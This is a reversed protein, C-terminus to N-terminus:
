MFSRQWSNSDVLSWEEQCNSDTRFLHLDRRQIGCPQFVWGRFQEICWPIFVVAWM